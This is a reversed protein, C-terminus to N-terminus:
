LVGGYKIASLIATVRRAGAPSAAIQLPVAGDLMPHSRRLWQAAEEGSDFTDAAMRELEQLMPHFNTELEPM